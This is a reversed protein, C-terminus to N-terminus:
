STFDYQPCLNVVASATVALANEQSLGSAMAINGALTIASPSGGISAIYSCTARGAEILLSDSVNATGSSFNRFDALFEATGGGTSSTVPASDPASAARRERERERRRAEAEREATAAEIEARREIREQKRLEAAAVEANDYKEATSYNNAVVIAGMLLLLAGFAILGRRTSPDM